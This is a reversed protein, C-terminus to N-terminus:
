ENEINKPRRSSFVFRKLLRRVIASFMFYILMIFVIIFLTEIMAGFFIGAWGNGAGMTSMIFVLFVLLALSWLILLSYKYFFEGTISEKNLIFRFVSNARSANDDDIASFKRFQKNRSSRKKQGKNLATQILSTLIMIPIILISAIVSAFYVNLVLHKIFMFWLPTKLGSNSIFAKDLIFYYDFICVAPLVLFTCLFLRKMYRTMFESSHRKMQSDQWAFKFIAFFAYFAYAIEFFEVTTWYGTWNFFESYRYWKYFCYYMPFFNCCCLFLYIQLIVFGGTLRLLVSPLDNYEDSNYGQRM